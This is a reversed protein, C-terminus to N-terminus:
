ATKSIALTTVLVCEPVKCGLDLELSKQKGVPHGEALLNIGETGSNGGRDFLM